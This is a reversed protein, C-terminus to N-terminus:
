EKVPLVPWNRERGTHTHLLSPFVSTQSLKANSPMTLMKIISAQNGILHWWASFGDDCENEKEEARFLMKLM